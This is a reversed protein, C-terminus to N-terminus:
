LQLEILDKLKDFSVLSEWYGPKFEGISKGNRLVDILKMDDIEIDPGFCYEAPIYNVMGGYVVEYSADHIHNVEMAVEIYQKM